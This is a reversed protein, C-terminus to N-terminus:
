NVPPFLWPPVTYWGPQLNCNGRTAEVYCEDASDPSGLSKYYAPKEAPPPGPLKRAAARKSDGLEVRLLTSAEAFGSDGTSDGTGDRSVSYRKSTALQHDSSKTTSGAKRLTSMKKQIDSADIVSSLLSTLSAIDHGLKKIISKGPAQPTPRPPSVRPGGATGAVTRTKTPKPRTAPKDLKAGRVPVGTVMQDARASGGTVSNRQSDEPVKCMYTYEARSAAEVVNNPQTFAGSTGAGTKKLSDERTIYTYENSTSEEDPPPVRARGGKVGAIGAGSM